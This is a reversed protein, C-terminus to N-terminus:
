FLIEEYISTLCIYFPLQKALIVCNTQLQWSKQKLETHHYNLIKNGCIICQFTAMQEVHFQLQVNLPLCLSGECVKHLSLDVENGCVLVVGFCISPVWPLFMGKHQIMKLFFIYQIFVCVWELIQQKMTIDVQKLKEEKSDQNFEALLPAKEPRITACICLWCYQTHTDSIQDKGKGRFSVTEQLPFHRTGAQHSLIRHLPLLTLCSFYRLWMSSCVLSWLGTLERKMTPTLLWTTLNIFFFLCVLSVPKPQFRCPEAILNSKSSIFVKENIKLFWYTPRKTNTDCTLTTFSSRWLFTNSSITRAISLISFSKRGDTDRLLLSTCTRM